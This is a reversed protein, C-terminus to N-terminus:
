FQVGSQRWLQEPSKKAEIFKAEPRAMKKKHYYERTQTRHKETTKYVRPKNPEMLRLIKNVQQRSLGFLSALETTGMGRHNLELIRANREASSQVYSPM